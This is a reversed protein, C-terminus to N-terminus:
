MSLNPSGNDYVVYLTGPHAPDCLIQGVSLVNADSMDRVGIEANDGARALALSDLRSEIGQTRM